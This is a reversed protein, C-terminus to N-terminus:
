SVFVKLRRESKEKTIQVDMMDHYDHHHHGHHDHHNHHAASHQIIPQEPNFLAQMEDYNHDHSHEEDISKAILEKKDRWKSETQALDILKEKTWKVDLLCEHFKTDNELM